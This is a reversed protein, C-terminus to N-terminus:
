RLCVFVEQKETLGLYHRCGAETLTLMATELKHQSIGRFGSLSPLMSHPICMECGCHVLAHLWRLAGDMALRFRDRIKVDLRRIGNLSELLMPHVGVLCVESATNFLVQQLCSFMCEYNSNSIHFTGSELRRLSAQVRTFAVKGTGPSVGQAITRLSVKIMGDTTNNRVSHRICFLLVDLDFQDLREGSYLATCRLLASTIPFNTVTQRKRAYIGQFCDSAFLLEPPLQMFDREPTTIAPAAVPSVGYRWGIELIERDHQYHDDFMM